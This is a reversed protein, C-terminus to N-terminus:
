LPKRVLYYHDSIKSFRYDAKGPVPAMAVSVEIKQGLNFANHVKGLLDETSLATGAPLEPIVHVGVNKIQDLLVKFETMGLKQQVKITAM